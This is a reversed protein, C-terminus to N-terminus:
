TSAYGSNVLYNASAQDHYPTGLWRRAAAAVRDPNASARHADGTTVSGSM